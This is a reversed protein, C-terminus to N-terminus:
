QAPFYRHLVKHEAKLGIIAAVGANLELVHSVPEGSTIIDESFPTTRRAIKAITGDPRIFIMDLSLVTNRMWMNVLNTHDFQFLMGHKLGMEKRHMLGIMREEPEDAIEVVFKFTGSGTKLELTETELKVSENQTDSSSNQARVEHPAAFFTLMVLAALGTAKLLPWNVVQKSNSQMM